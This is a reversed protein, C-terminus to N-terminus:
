PAPASEAVSGFDIQCDEVQLYLSTPASDLKVAYPDSGDAKVNVQGDPTWNIAFNIPSAPDAPLKFFGINKDAMSMGAMHVAICPAPEKETTLRVCDLAVRDHDHAINIGVLNKRKEGTSGDIPIFQLAVRLGTLASIDNLAKDELKGGQPAILAHCGKGADGLAYASQSLAFAATALAAYFRRSTGTRRTRYM